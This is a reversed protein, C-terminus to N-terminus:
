ASDRGDTIVEAEKIMRFVIRVAFRIFDSRMIKYRDCFDNIEKLQDPKCSFCVVVRGDEKKM